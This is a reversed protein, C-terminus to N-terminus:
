IVGLRLMTGFVHEAIMLILSLAPARVRRARPRRRMAAARFEHQISSARTRTRSSCRSQQDSAIERNNSLRTRTRWYLLLRINNDRDSHRCRCRHPLWIVPTGDWHCRGCVVLQCSPIISKIATTFTVHAPAKPAAIFSGNIPEYTRAYGHRASISIRCFRNFGNRQRPRVDFRIRFEWVHADGWDM